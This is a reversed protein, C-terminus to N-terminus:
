GQLLGDEVLRRKVDSLSVTEEGRREALSALDSVDEMLDQYDCIPIVVALKDGHDDTIYQTNMNQYYDINILQRNNKASCTNLSLVM